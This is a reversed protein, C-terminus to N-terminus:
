RARLRRQNHLEALLDGVQPHTAPGPLLDRLQQMRHKAARLICNLRGYLPAPGTGNRSHYRIGSALDRQHRRDAAVHIGNQRGLVRDLPQPNRNVVHDDLVSVKAVVVLEENGVAKRVRFRTLM